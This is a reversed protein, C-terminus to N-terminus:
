RKVVNNNNNKYASQNFSVLTAAGVILLILSINKVNM